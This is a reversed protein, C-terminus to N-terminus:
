SMFAAPIPRQLVDASDGGQNDGTLLYNVRRGINVSHDAFREFYRALLATDVAAGAGHRWSPDALMELVHLQLRDMDDDLIRLGRARIVDGTRLADAGQDALDVALAGMQRFVPRMEAPIVANPHRRETAQAVHIALVGMRHLDGVIWLSAVVRRLDTAVPAQLALMTLAASETASRASNLEVSRDIVSRALDLDVDLLSQTASRLLDGTLESLAACREGLADLQRHFDTRM